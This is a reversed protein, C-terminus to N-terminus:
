QPVRDTELPRRSRRVHRRGYEGRGRRFDGRGGRMNEDAVLGGYDDRLDIDREPRGIM